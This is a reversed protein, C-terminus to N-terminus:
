PGILTERLEVYSTSPKGDDNTTSEQIVPAESKVKTFSAIGTIVKSFSDTRKIEIWVHFIFIFGFMIASFTVSVTLVSCFHDRSFTLLLIALNLLM